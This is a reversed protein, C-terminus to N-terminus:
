RQEGSGEDKAEDIDMGDYEAAERKSTTRMLQGKSGIRFYQSVVQSVMNLLSPPAIYEREPFAELGEIKVKEGDEARKLQMVDVCIMIIWTAIKLMDDRDLGVFMELAQRVTPENMLLSEIKATLAENETTQLLGAAKYVEVRPVNLYDALGNLFEASRRKRGHLLDSFYAPKMGLAQGIQRFTVGRKKAHDHVFERFTDTSIDENNM